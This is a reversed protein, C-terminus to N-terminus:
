WLLVGLPVFVFVFVEKTNEGRSTCGVTVTGQSQTATRRSLWAPQGALGPGRSCPRTSWERRTDRSEAIKEFTLEREKMWRVKWLVSM